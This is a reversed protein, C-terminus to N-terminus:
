LDTLLNIYGIIEFSFLIALECKWGNFDYGYEYGQRDQQQNIGLIKNGESKYHVVTSRNDICEINQVGNKNNTL